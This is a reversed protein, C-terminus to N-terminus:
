TLSNIGGDWMKAEGQAAPGRQSGVRLILREDVVAACRPLKRGAVM